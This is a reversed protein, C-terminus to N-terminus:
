RCRKCWRESLQAPSGCATGGTTLGLLTRRLDELRTTSVAEFILTSTESGRGNPRSCRRTGAASSRQRAARWLLEWRGCTAALRRESRQRQQLEQTSLGLCVGGLGQKAGLRSIPAGSIPRSSCGVHSNPAEVLLSSIYCTQLMTTQSAKCAGRRAELDIRPMSTTAKSLAARPHHTCLLDTLTSVLRGAAQSCCACNSATCDWMGMHTMMLGNLRRRGCVCLLAWECELQPRPHDVPRRGGGVPSTHPPPHVHSCHMWTPALAEAAPWAAPM